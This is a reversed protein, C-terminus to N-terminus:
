PTEKPMQTLFRRFAAVDFGAEPDVSFLPAFDDRDAAVESPPWFRHAALDALVGRACAVAQATQGADLGDFPLIKTDRVARPLVFYGTTVAEPFDGSQALLHRYLPLQLDRWARARGGFEVRAYDPTTERVTGFHAAEPPDGKEGTKYDLARVLGSRENREIRDVRGRLTVGDFRCEVSAEVAVMRWGEEVSAVHIRAAHLLRQRAAEAQIAVTLPPRRGFRIRVERDFRAVLAAYVRDADRESVLSAETGLVSLAEHILIGFDLADLEDKRAEVTELRLIRQLYFRFPCALYAKFDSVSVSPLPLRGAAPAVAEAHLPFSVSPPVNPRRDEAGRFLRGCRSVLTDDDCHFLLRSPKLPDGAASTRGVLLCVRGGQTRRWEIMSTLTYADRALREADCRLGLRARAANPLFVDSLRGDPVFGENLGTVVLVPADNWPLELWGELDVGAEAPEPYYATRRARELLLALAQGNDLGTIKLFSAPMEELLGNLGEAALVFAQGDLDDTRISRGRYVADLLGRVAEDFPQEAFAQLRQRIFAFTRGLPSETNARRTFADEAACPLHDAHIRDLDALVAQAPAQHTRALADLLDSRRMLRSLAQFTRTAALEGFTELLGFLPHLALPRGAPDFPVIGRDELLPTLAAGVEADPVGVAVSGVALPEGALDLLCRAQAGPSACVHLNASEDPMAIERAEWTGPIPRGWADFADALSEPAHVLVFVPREAALAALARVMVASPDPVCAVVIRRISPDMSPASAAQIEAEWPDALGLGMLQKLYRRELAALDAWREPEEAAPGERNLVDAIRLGGEALTSRLEHILRGTRFAWDFEGAAPTTPFLGKFRSPGAVRLVDAWVALVQAPTAVHSGPGSPVAVFSPQVVRPALLATGWAACQRALTERLRRGAQRTPVVVLDSGLDVSGPVPLLYRVVKTTLPEDWGLLLRTLPVTRYRYRLSTPTELGL